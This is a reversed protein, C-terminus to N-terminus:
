SDPHMRPIDEEVTFSPKKRRRTIKPKKREAKPRDEQYSNDKLKKDEAEWHYLDSKFIRFGGNLISGASEEEEEEHDKKSNFFLFGIIKIIVYVVAFFVIISLTIITLNAMLFSLFGYALIRLPAYMGHMKISEISLMVFISIYSLLILNMFIIFKGSNILALIGNEVIWQFTFYDMVASRSKLLAIFLLVSTFSAMKLPWWNKIYYHSDTLILAFFYEPIVGIGFPIRFYWQFGAYTSNKKASLYQDMRIAARIGYRISYVMMFFTAILVAISILINIM